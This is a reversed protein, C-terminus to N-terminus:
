DENTTQEEITKKFKEKIIEKIINGSSDIIEYLVERINDQSSLIVSRIPKFISFLFVGIFLVPSFLYLVYFINKMDYYSGSIPELKFCSAVLVGFFFLGLLSYLENKKRILNKDIPIEKKEFFSIITKQILNLQRVEWGTLAIFYIFSAQILWYLFSLVLTNTNTRYDYPVIDLISANLNGIFYTYEQIGITHCLVFFLSVISAMFYHFKKRYTFHKDMEIEFKKIAILKYEIDNLSKITEFFDNKKNFFVVLLLFGITLICFQTFIEPLNHSTTLVIKDKYIYRELLHENNSLLTFLIAKEIFSIFHKDYFIKNKDKFEIINKDKIVISTFDKTDKLLSKLKYNSNANLITKLRLKTTDDKNIAKIINKSMTDFYVPKNIYVSYHGNYSKLLAYKDNDINYLSNIFYFLSFIAVVLLGYILLFKYLHDSDFYTKSEIPLLDDFINNRNIKKYIRVKLEENFASSINEGENKFAEKIKDKSNEEFNELYYSQDKSDDINKIYQKKKGNWDSFYKGLPSLFPEITVKNNSNWYDSYEVLNDM